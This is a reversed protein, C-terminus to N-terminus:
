SVRNNELLEMARYMPLTRMTQLTENQAARRIKAPGAATALM